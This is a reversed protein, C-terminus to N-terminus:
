KMVAEIDTFLQALSNKPYYVRYRKSDSLLERTTNKNEAIQKDVKQTIAPENPYDAFSRDDIGFTVKVGFYVIYTTEKEM